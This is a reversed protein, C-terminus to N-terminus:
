RMPETRLRAASRRESLSPLGMLGAGRVGRPGFLLPPVGPPVRPLLLFPAAALCSESSLSSLPTPKSLAGLLAFRGLLARLAAPALREYLSGSVESSSPSSFFSLSSSRATADLFILSSFSSSILSLSPSSAPM